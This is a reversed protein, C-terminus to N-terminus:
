PEPQTPCPLPMEEIYVDDILFSGIEGLNTNVPNFQLGSLTFIFKVSSANGPVVYTRYFNTWSLDNQTLRGIEERFLFNNGSDYGEISAIIGLDGWFINRSKGYFGFEYCIDSNVSSFDSTIEAWINPIDVFIVVEASYIGSFSESTLEWDVQSPNPVDKIWHVFAPEEEFSCNLPGSGCNVPYLVNGIFIDDISQGSLGHESGDWFFQFSCATSNGVSVPTCRFIDSGDGSLGIVTFGGLTALYIKGTTDDVWVGDIDELSTESLGVDSGDFYMSWPPTTTADFAILDEDQGSTGLVSFTGLTSVLLRGDPTFGIADIDENNNTNLGLQSAAYPREFTGDTTDGLSIPIFRIIDSDDVSGIGPITTPDAFSLYLTGDALFEFADINNSLAVDSGDFVVDWTNSNLSYVLIDEDTFPVGGVTGNTDFSVYIDGPEVTVPINQTFWGEDSFYTSGHKMDLVLTYEGPVANPPLEVALTVPSPNSGGSVEGPALNGVSVPSTTPFYPGTPTEWWYTLGVSSDWADKGSNQPLVTAYYTNNPLMVPSVDVSVANWRYDPLLSQGTSSILDVETYYHTLIQQYDVWEAYTGNQWRCREDSSINTNGAIWRCAGVQSLGMGHGGGHGEPDYVSVLYPPPPDVYEITWNTLHDSSFLYGSLVTNNYELHQGLTDNVAVVAMSHEWEPIYVQIGTSNNIITGTMSALLSKTRAAVSQARLTAIIPYADPPMEQSVVSPLYEEEFDLTIPNAAFPYRNNGGCGFNMIKDYPQYAPNEPDDSRCLWWDGTIPDRRRGGQGQRNECLDLDIDGTCLHYVAVTITSGTQAYLDNKSPPVGLFTVFFVGRIFIFLKIYRHKGM